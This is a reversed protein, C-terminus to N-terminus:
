LRSTLKRNNWRKQNKRIMGHVKTIMPNKWRRNAYIKSTNRIKQHTIMMTMKKMLSSPPMMIVMRHQGQEQVSNASVQEKERLVRVRLTMRVEKEKVRAMRITRRSRRLRLYVRVSRRLPTNDNNNHHTQIHSDM